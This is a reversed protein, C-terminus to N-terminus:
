KSFYVYIYGIGGKLNRIIGTHCMLGATTFVYKDTNYSDLRSRDLKLRRSTFGHSKRALFV